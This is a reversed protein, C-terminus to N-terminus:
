ASTKATLSRTWKSCLILNKQVRLVDPYIMIIAEFIEIAAPYNGGRSLEVARRLEAQTQVPLSSLGMDLDPTDGRVVMTGAPLGFPVAEVSVRSPGFEEYLKFGGLALLAGCCVALFWYAAKRASASSKSM